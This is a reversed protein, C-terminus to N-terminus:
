SLLGTVFDRIREWAVTAHHQEESDRPRTLFGHHAPYDFIQLENNAAAVAAQVMEVDGATFPGDDTRHIQLPARMRVLKTGPAPAPGGAHIVVDIRPLVAAAEVAIAAGADIGVVGLKGYAMERLKLLALALEDIAGAHDIASVRERADDDSNTAHGGVVDFALVFFGLKVIPEVLRSLVDDTLGREGALVVVGGGDRTQSAEIEPMYRRAPVRVGDDRVLELQEENFGIM